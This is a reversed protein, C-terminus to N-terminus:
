RDIGSSEVRDIRGLSLLNALLEYAGTTGAPLQRWLGLGIYIWRGDGVRAEVLAGRKIGPNWEFSDELEVLDLYAPDKDGLFYLGREQVWNDWTTEDIQNPWTFLPHDIALVTVPAGEDTVRDRSVEVPYPGYQADNFEFKNYQVIVTGGDHAYRLLRDNNARLDPRREYARVGTVIVEYRSLDSWALADADLHEVQAGLQEISSSVADGVGDVYGVTLNSEIAVDIVKFTARSSRVLHRRGIHPYEVVQYGQDFRGTPTEVVAQVQYSGITTAGPSVTFRVTRTEDERSFRVTTADPTQSWGAPVELTVEGTAPERGTNTVTVRVEQAAKTQGPIIVIEPTIEVALQPVVILATRKEGAFIDDAYRYEIPQEISVRGSSFEIDFIARFPTPRFPLGFPLSDDFAYRATGPVHTWHIGTPEANAPIRLESSCQYIVIGESAKVEEGCAVSAQDFGAFSVQDVVVNDMSQNVVLASITVPQDPTVLGDDALAEFRLGHALVAARSFQREKADLRFDIEWRADDSLPLAVLRGRLNRVAALGLLISERAAKQGAQEFAELATRAHGSVATLGVVLDQPPREGAFRILGEISTNVGDFLSSERAGANGPLTTEVLRYSAVATGPLAILASMGQCKHMSRAESGIEAYTRGLLPDYGGVDIATVTADPPSHRRRRAGNSSVGGGRQFPFGASFYFKKPQWPRLGDKLQEPFRSPDAAAAYAERALIASAQHHQGGGQGDPSMGVIVEPRVTRIMRVFDGLIAERGWKDFTEERSFSYGFDVARTFYQEAGDFRHAALLEETRLVALADFLEPGIENQGGDGRTATVLVARIGQGKALLALLANNEDDPHATAMMFTGVTNLQRLVVGLDAGQGTPRVSQPVAASVMLLAASVVTLIGALLAAGKLQM